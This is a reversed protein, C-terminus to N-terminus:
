AEKPLLGRLLKIMGKIEAAAKENPMVMGNIFHETGDRKTIVQKISRFKRGDSSLSLQSVWKRNPGTEFEDITKNKWTVSGTAKTVKVKSMDPGKKKKLASAKKVLVKKATAM